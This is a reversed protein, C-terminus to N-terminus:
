NLKMYKKIAIESSNAVCDKVYQLTEDKCPRNHSKYCQNVYISYKSNRSKKFRVEITLHEDDIDATYVVCLGINIKNVYGGVCNHNRKGEFELSKKTKLLIFEKPLKLYKLPTAPIVLKKGYNMKKTIRDALQEHYTIIKKKGALIDIPEKLTMSFDIYDNLVDGNISLNRKTQIYWKFYDCAIKRKNNKNPVLSFDIDNTDTFLSPIQESKIYNKACCAAYTRNFSLKNVSKPLTINFQKEFYEKKNHYNAIENLKIPPFFDESFFDKWIKSSESFLSLIHKRIQIPAYKLDSVTTPYYGKNRGVTFFDNCNYIFIKRKVQQWSLWWTNSKKLDINVGNTPSYFEIIIYKTGDDKLKLSIRIKQGTEKLSLKIYELCKNQQISNVMENLEHLEYPLIDIVVENAYVVDKRINLSNDFLKILSNYFSECFQEKCTM